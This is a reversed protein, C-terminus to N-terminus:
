PTASLLEIIQSNQITIIQLAQLQYEAALLQQEAIRDVNPNNYADAEYKTVLGLIAQRQKDVLDQADKVRAAYTAARDRAIANEQFTTVIQFVQAALIAALLGIILWTTLRSSTQTSEM